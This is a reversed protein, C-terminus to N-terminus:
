SQQNKIFWNNISQGLKEFNFSEQKTVCAMVYSKGNTQILAVSANKDSIRYVTGSIKNALGKEPFSALEGLIKNNTNPDLVKGQYLKKLVNVLDKATTTGTENGGFNKTVKSQKAGFEVATKNVYNKGLQKLLINAADTNNQRVMLQYLYTLSYGTNVKLLSNNGKVDGNKITYTKTGQIKKAAVGRHYALMVFLKMVNGSTIPKSSNEVQSFTSPNNLDDVRVQMADSPEGLQGKIVKTLKSNSKKTVDLTSVETSIESNGHETKNSFKKQKSVKAKDNGYIKLTAQEMQNTSSIYFALSCFAALAAGLFVKNKM